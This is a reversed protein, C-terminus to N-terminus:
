QSVPDPVSEPLAPSNVPNVIPKQLVMKKLRTDIKIMMGEKLGNMDAIGNLKAIEKYFGPTGYYKRSIGFLTDGAAVQHFVYVGSTKPKSTPVPIGATAPVQTATQDEVVVQTAPQEEIKVPKTQLKGSEIAESVKLEPYTQMKKSISGKILRAREITDQEVEKLDLLKQSNYEKRAEIIKTELNWIYKEIKALEAKEAKIEARAKEVEDVRMAEPTPQAVVPTQTTQASPAPQITASTDEYFPQQQQAQPAPGGFAFSVTSLIVIFAAALLYRKL